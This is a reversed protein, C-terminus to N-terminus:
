IETGLLSALELVDAALWRAGM